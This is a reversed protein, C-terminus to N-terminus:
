ASRYYVLMSWDHDCSFGGDQSVQASMADDTLTVNLPDTHSVIRSIQHNGCVQAKVEMSYPQTVYVGRDEWRWDWNIPSITPTAAPTTPTVTALTLPTPPAALPRWVAGQCIGGRRGGPHAPQAAARHSVGQRNSAASEGRPVAPTADGGSAGRDGEARGSCPRSARWPPPFRGPCTRVVRITATRTDSPPPVCECALSSKACKGCHPAAHDVIYRRMHPAVALTAEEKRRGLAACATWRVSSSPREARQKGKKAELQQRRPSEIAAKVEPLSPAKVKKPRNKSRGVVEKGESDRKRPRKKQLCGGDLGGLRRETAEPTEPARLPRLPRTEEEITEEETDEIVKEKVNDTKAAERVTAKKKRRFLRRLLYLFGCCKVAREEKMDEEAAREMDDDAQRRPHDAPTYRPNLVTPLVFSIIGDTEVRLEMVLRLTVKARTGAPFNSLNLTLIDSSDPDERTMLATKGREFGGQVGERGTHPFPVLTYPKNKELCHTVITRGDLQAECHYVAAGEEVPLVARVLVVWVGGCGCAVVGVERSGHRM